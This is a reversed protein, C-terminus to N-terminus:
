GELELEERVESGTKATSPDLKYEALRRDLENREDNTLGLDVSDEELPELITEVLDVREQFTMRRIDDISIKVPANQGITALTVSLRLPLRDPITNGSTIM